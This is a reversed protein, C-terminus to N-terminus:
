CPPQDIRKPTLGVPRSGRALKRGDQSAMVFRAGFILLQFEQQVVPLGVINGEIVAELLPWQFWSADRLHCRDIRGDVVRLWVLLDGRFAEILAMGEAPGAYAQELSVLVPGSPLRSLLQELLKLSERIEHVRIWARANM